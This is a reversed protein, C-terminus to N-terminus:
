HGSDIGFRTVTSPRRWGRGRALLARARSAREPAGFLYGIARDCGLECLRAGAAWSEVGEAVVYRHGAHALRIVSAVLTDDEEDAGVDRVFAADLKVADVPLEAVTALSSYWTGFDDIALALGVERLPHLLGAVRPGALALDKETLEVGLSGPVLGFESVLAGLREVFGPCALQAGAVNVWLQYAIDAPPM